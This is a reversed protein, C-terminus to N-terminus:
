LPVGECAVVASAPIWFCNGSTFIRNSGPVVNRLGFANTGVEANLVSDPAGPRVASTKALLSSLPEGISFRVSGRTTNPPFGFSIRVACAGDTRGVRHVPQSVGVAEPLCMRPTSPNPLRRYRSPLSKILVVPPHPDPEVVASIESSFSRRYASLISDMGLKKGEARNTHCGAFGSARCRATSAARCDSIAMATTPMVESRSPSSDLM